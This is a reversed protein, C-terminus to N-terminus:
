CINVYLHESIIRALRRTGKTQREMKIEKCRVWHSKLSKVGASDTVLARCRPCRRSWTIASFCNAMDYLRGWNCLACLHIYTHAHTQAPAPRPAYLRVRWQLSTKSPKILWKRHTAWNLRLCNVGANQAPILLAWLSTSQHHESASVSDISAQSFVTLHLGASDIM